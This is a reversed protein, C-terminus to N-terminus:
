DRSSKSTESTLLVMGQITNSRLHQFATAQDSTTFEPKIGLKDFILRATLYSGSGPQGIDIKRGNLDYINTIDIRALICDSARFGSFTVFASM